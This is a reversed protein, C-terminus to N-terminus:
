SAQDRWLKFEDRLIKPACNNWSVKHHFRYNDAAPDRFAYVKVASPCYLVSYFSKVYTGSQLYADTMGGSNTQTKKQKLRVQLLTGFLLGRRQSETYTNVDENIRGVFSFPKQTDCFFSNMAKRKLYLTKNYSCLLGGIHDGGQSFAISIFPTNELFQIFAECVQEFTKKISINSISYTSDKNSTYAFSMYDDDLQLFFRFGKQKAIKFSANRAYIITNQKEFNDGEDFTKAIEAKSFVILKDQYKAKYEALQPDGDDVVFFVNETMGMRQLTNWTTVNNPRNHTLIFICFNEIM